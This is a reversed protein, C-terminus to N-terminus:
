QAGVQGHTAWVETKGMRDAGRGSIDVAEKGGGNEAVLTAEELDKGSERPWETDGEGM